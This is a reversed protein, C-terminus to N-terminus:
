FMAFVTDLTMPKKTEINRYGCAGEYINGDKDTVMAVFGPLGGARTVANELFYKQRSVLRVM